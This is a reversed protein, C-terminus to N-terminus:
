TRDGGAAVPRVSLGPAGRRFGEGRGPAVENMALDIPLDDLGIV